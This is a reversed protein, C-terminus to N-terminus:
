NDRLWDPSPKYLIITCIRNQTEVIFSLGIQNPTQAAFMVDYSKNPAYKMTKKNALQTNVLQEYM